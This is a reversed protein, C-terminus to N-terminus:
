VYQKQLFILVLTIALTDVVLTPKPLLTLALLDQQTTGLKLPHQHHVPHSEEMIINLFMSVIVTSSIPVLTKTVQTEM